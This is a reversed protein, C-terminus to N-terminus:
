AIDEQSTLREARTLPPGIKNGTSSITIGTKGKGMEGKLFKQGAKSSIIKSFALDGLLLQMSVLPDFPFATVAAGLKLLFATQSGGSVKDFKGISRTLKAINRLAEAQEANLIKSIKSNGFTNIERSLGNPTFNGEPNKSRKFMEELFSSQIVPINEKGIIEFIREIDDSSTTKNLIAPIIKDPQDKLAFIKKGFSSNIKNLGDIYFSNANEFAQSLEPSRQLIADDLENSLLTVLKKLTGRNGTMIPDNFNKLKDNLERISARYSEGTVSEKSLSKELNKFFGIDKSKGLLEEAKLKEKLKTKIFKISESPQVIIQPGSKELKLARKYLDNKTDMFTERYKEAGKFIDIGASSLDPSANTDRVLDDAAKVLKNKSDDVMDFLKQGFISKSGTSELLTVIRADSIASAPVNIGLAESAQVAQADSAKSLPSLVKKSTSSVATGVGRMSAALPDVFTAAKSAAQGAKSLIGAKSVAGAGSALIGAGGLFMSLDAAFGVPDELATKKISEISGFREKYFNALADVLAEDPQVGPTLKQITGKALGLLAKGTDIPNMVTQAIGKAFEGGSRQLTEIPDTLLNSRTEPVSVEQTPVDEQALPRFRSKREIGQQELPRFGM